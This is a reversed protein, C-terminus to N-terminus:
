VGCAAAATRPTRRCGTRGPAAPGRTLRRPEPRARTPRTPRGLQPHRRHDHGGQALLERQQGGAAPPHQLARRDGAVRELGLQGGGRGVDALRLRHVGDVLQEAGVQDPRGAHRPAEAEAMRDDPAGDVLGRRGGPADSRVFADGLGEGVTAGAGSARAWCMSAEALTPSVAATAASASAPRCDAWRAGAVAARHNEPASRRSGSVAARRGVPRAARRRAGRRQRRGAAEGFRVLREHFAEPEDVGIRGRQADLQDGGARADLVQEAAVLLSMLPEGGRQFVQGVGGARGRHRQHEFEGGVLDVSQAVLGALRPGLLGDVGGLGIPSGASSAAASAM